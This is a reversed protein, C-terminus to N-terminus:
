ASRKERSGIRMKDIAQKVFYFMLALVIGHIVWVTGGFLYSLPKSGLFGAFENILLLLYVACLMWVFVKVAFQWLMMVASQKALLGTKEHDRAQYKYPFFRKDLMVLLRDQLVGIVMIIILMAFVKDVRGQRQGVRWILAGIGGESNISEAVIIYTWSIATVVRIDDSVRSIVSPVYVTRFTQWANAGITFVTKVYVDDVEDIRQIMVPLLYILIGFALFHVKMEVGIGFWVIFLMTVATLPIYRIADIQFKFGGRFLPILGILFGVPLSILIAEVYGSLNLGLSLCTNRVIDNDRYLDGFAGILRGPHPLTAAPLLPTAGSTLALWILLVFGIGGLSLLLTMRGSLEEHLKFLKM